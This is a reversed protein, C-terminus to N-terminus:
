KLGKHGELIYGQEEIAWVFEPSSCVNGRFSPDTNVRVIFRLMAHILIMSLDVPKIRQAYQLTRIVNDSSQHGMVYHILSALTAHLVDIKGAPPVPCGKPNKLIDEPPILSTINALYATYETAWEKGCAGAIVNHLLPSDVGVAAQLRSALEISRPTAFARRLHNPDFQYLQEPRTRLYAVFQPQIDNQQAWEIWAADDVQVDIHFMRNALASPLDHAAARDEVRNGTGILFVNDRIPINAVEHQQFMRFYAAFVSDPATTIDDFLAVIPGMNEPDALATLQLFDEPAYFVTTKREENCHPVGSLDTPDQTAALYVRLKANLRKALEEAIATKGIGPPGSLMISTSKPFRVLLDLIQGLRMVNNLDNEESAEVPM